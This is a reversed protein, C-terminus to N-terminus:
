KRTMDAFELQQMVIHLLRTLSPKGTEIIFDAIERYLPDRQAYLAALKSQPDTTQLLPRSRDYHLRAWLDHPSARLYIVTGHAKLLARNEQRLIAGGGTALIIGQHKVLEQLIQNERQRFGAEGELDFIVSVPVGCRAQLEQDSDFFPKNLKRALARGLTSKGAGMLGILYVNNSKAVLSIEWNQM